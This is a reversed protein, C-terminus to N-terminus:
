VAEIDLLEKPEVNLHIALRRLNLLSINRRGTEVQTYYSRSFGAQAALDEQTLNQALRLEKLRNGFRKLYVDANKDRQPM